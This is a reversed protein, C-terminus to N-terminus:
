VEERVLEPCIDMCRVHRAGLLGGLDDGANAVVIDRFGKVIKAGPIYTIQCSERLFFIGRVHGHEHLVRVYARLVPLTAILEESSNVRKKNRKSLHPNLTLDPNDDPM